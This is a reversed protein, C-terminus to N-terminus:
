FITRLASDLSPKYCTQIKETACHVWSSPKYEYGHGIMCVHLYEDVQDHEVDPPYHDVKEWLAVIDMASQHCSKFDDDMHMFSRFYLAGVAVAVIGAIKVARAIATM